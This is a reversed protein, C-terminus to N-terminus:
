NGIHFLDPSQLTHTLTFQAWILTRATSSALIYITNDGGFAVLSCADVNQVQVYQADGTGGRTYLGPEEGWDDNYHFVSPKDLTQRNCTPSL